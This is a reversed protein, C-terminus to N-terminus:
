QAAVTAAHRPSSRSGLMLMSATSRGRRMPRVERASVGNLSFQRFAVVISGRSGSFHLSSEQWPTRDGISKRLEVFHDSGQCGFILSSLAAVNETGGRCADTMVTGRETM